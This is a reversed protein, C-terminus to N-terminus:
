RHDTCTPYYGMRVNNMLRGIISANTTKAEPTADSENSNVMPLNSLYNNLADCLKGYDPTLLNFNKISKGLKASHNAFDNEESELLSLAAIDLAGLLRRHQNQLDAYIERAKPKDDKNKALRKRLVPLENASQKIVRAAEELKAVAYPTQKSTLEMANPPM